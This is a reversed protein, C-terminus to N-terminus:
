GRDSLGRAQDFRGGAFSPRLTWGTIANVLLLDLAGIECVADPWLMTGLVSVVAM